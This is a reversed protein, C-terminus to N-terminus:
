LSSIEYLHLSEKLLNIGKIVMYTKVSVSVLIETIGSGIGSTKQYRNFMELFTLKVKDSELIM